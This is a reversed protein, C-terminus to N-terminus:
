LSIDASEQGAHRRGEDVPSNDLGGSPQLKVKQAQPQATQKPRQGGLQSIQGKGEDLPFESVDRTPARYGKRGRTGAVM